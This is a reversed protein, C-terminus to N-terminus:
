RIREGALAKEEGGTGWLWKGAECWFGCGEAEGSPQNEQALAFISLVSLVLVLLGIFRKKMIKLM